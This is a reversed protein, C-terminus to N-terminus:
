ISHTPAPLNSVVTPTSPAPLTGLVEQQTQQAPPQQPTQSQGLSIDAANPAQATVTPTTPASPTEQTQATNDNGGFLGGFLKMVMDILPKFMDLWSGTTNQQRQAAIEEETPPPPAQTTTPQTGNDVALTAVPPAAAPTTPTTPNDAAPAPAQPTTTAAPAAPPPTPSQTRAAPTAPTTPAQASQSVTNAQVASTFTSSRALDAINVPKIGLVTQAQADNLGALTQSITQNSGLAAIIEQQSKGASNNITDAIQQQLEQIGQNAAQKRDAPVLFNGNIKDLLKQVDLGQLALVEDMMKRADQATVQAM